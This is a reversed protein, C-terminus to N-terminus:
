KVLAIQFEVKVEDKVKVTGGAISAPTIGFATQKLTASGRYFGDKLTVDVTVPHAQGHLDLKGHVVWHGAGRAEITNSQFRVDPFHDVDLVEPGQMTKQIQARTDQSAEPDLVRMKRADVRLEISPSESEKVEGSEIPAEIEHNHAFASFFGTKSVRVTMTSQPGAIKRADTGAAAPWTPCVWLTLVAFTTFALRKM